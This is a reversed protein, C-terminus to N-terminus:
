GVTVKAKHGIDGVKGALIGILNSTIKVVTPDDVHLAQLLLDSCAYYDFRQSVCAFIM